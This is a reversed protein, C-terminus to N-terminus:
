DKKRKNEREVELLTMAKGHQSLADKDALHVVTCAVKDRIKVWDCSHSTLTSPFGYKKHINAKVFNTVYHPQTISKEILKIFSM